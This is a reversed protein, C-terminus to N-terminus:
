EEELLKGLKEDLEKLRTAEDKKPTVPKIPPKRIPASIARAARVPAPAYQEKFPDILKISEPRVKEKDLSLVLHRIIEPMMQIDHNFAAIQESPYAFILTAYYGYEHRGIPYALRQKGWFSQAYIRGEAKAILSAVKAVLNQADTETMNSTAVLTIEYNNM